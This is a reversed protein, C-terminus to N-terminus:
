ASRQLKRMIEYMRDPGGAQQVAARPVYAEGNSVKAPTVGNRGQITAPISDSTGTGPGRIPRAGPVLSQIGRPGGAGDVAKKTMVFGGDEMQVKGGNAYAQMLGGQAAYTAIPGYKGEVMTRTLPKSPGAYAQTTGGGQTTGKQRDLYSLLAMLGALGAKSTALDLGKGLLEKGGGAGVLDRIARTLWNGGEGVTVGEPPIDKGGGMGKHYEDGYSWNVGGREGFPDVFTREGPSMQAILEEPTLGTTTDVAWPATTGFFQTASGVGSEEDYISM